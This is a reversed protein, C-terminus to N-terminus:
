GGKIIAVVCVALSVIVLGFVFDSKLLSNIIEFREKVNFIYDKVFLFVKKPRIKVDENPIKDFVLAPIIGWNYGFIEWFVLILIWFALGVFYTNGLTEYGRFLSHKFGKWM